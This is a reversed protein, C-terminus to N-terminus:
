AFSQNDFKTAMSKQIKDNPPQGTGLDDHSFFGWLRIIHPNRGSLAYVISIDHTLHAHAIGKVKKGFNGDPKFLKDSAGFPQM